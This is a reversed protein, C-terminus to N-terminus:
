KDYFRTLNFTCDNIAKMHTLLEPYPTYNWQVIGKNSDRNSPDTNLNQPDNDMYTFWHWGVCTKSKVLENVFNEYFLGRDNQTRVLWGAGTTNGLGSDVGKTYFETVIYPIGTYGCITAMLAQDPQWKGYHNISLVDMYQGAIKLLEENSMDHQWQNFRCGLFLHNKDYKRLCTHVKKIYTEFCYATFAKKDATTAESLKAGSKGKRQDLWQQATQRNIHTSPWKFCRDLAYDKWPIENDIFYGLLRKDDQYQAVTAIAKEVYVDFEPDFVMAFDYPYKEWSTAGDFADKEKGSSKLYEIYNGMPSVIVTYPFNIDKLNRITGVDSWAGASNFGHEQLMGIEHRAWSSYTNTPYLNRLNEKQRDSGGTSLVAVGQSLFVNGEPDVFWWRDGIKRVEFFGSTNGVYTDKWGGYSDRAPDAKATFGPITEVTNATYWTWATTTSKAKSEVRYPEKADEGEEGEHKEEQPYVDPFDYVKERACGACVMAAAAILFLSYRKM